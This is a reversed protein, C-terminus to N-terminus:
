NKSYAIPCLRAAEKLLQNAKSYDKKEAAINSLTFYIKHFNPALARAQEYEKQAMDLYRPDRSFLYKRLYVSGIAMPYTLEIPDLQQSRYFFTEASNYDQNDFSKVGQQYSLLGSSMRLVLYLLAALIFLSVVSITMRLSAFSGMSIRRGQPESHCYIPELHRSIPEPHSTIREFAFFAALIAWWFFLVDPRLMTYNTLNDILFSTIAWIFGILIIRNSHDQQEKLMRYARQAFVTILSIVAIFGLIGNEVWLQLYSNHVYSSFGLNYTIYKTSVTNFTDAGSGFWPNDRLLLFALKLYEKRAAIDFDKRVVLIILFFLLLSGGVLWFPVKNINIKHCEKLILPLILLSVVLFSVCCLFSFTLFFVLLFLFILVILIRKQWLKQVLMFSAWTLPIVLMLYGALLNPWDFLSAIRKYFFGFHTGHNFGTLSRRMEISLPNQAFLYEWIALVAVLISFVLLYSWFVYLVDKSNLSDHLIYFLCVCSILFLVSSFSESFSASHTLSFVAASLALLVPIDLKSKLINESNLIKRLIFLFSLFFILGAAILDCLSESIFFFNDGWIVPLCLHLILIIACSGTFFFDSSLGMPQPRPAHRLM